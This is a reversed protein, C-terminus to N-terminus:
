SQAEILRVLNQVDKEILPRMTDKFKTCDISLAAEKIRENLEMKYPVIFELYQLAQRIATPKEDDLIVLVDNLHKNIMNETDWKAQKCFLRFGRVRIVNKESNAMEVFKNIYPYLMDTNDSLLELEKLSEFAKSTDKDFLTDLISELNM